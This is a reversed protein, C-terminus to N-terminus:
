SARLKSRLEKSFQNAQFMECEMPGYNPLDSLAFQVEQAIVFDGYIDLALVKKSLPLREVKIKQRPFEGTTTAYKTLAWSEVFVYEEVDVQFLYSNPCCTCIIIEWARIIELDLVEARVKSKITKLIPPYVKPSASV